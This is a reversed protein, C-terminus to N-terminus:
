NRRLKTKRRTRLIRAGRIRCPMERGHTKRPSIWIKITSYRRIGYPLLRLNLAGKDQPEKVPIM